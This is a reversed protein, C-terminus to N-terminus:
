FSNLRLFTGPIALLVSVISDCRLLQIVNLNDSTPRRILCFDYPCLWRGTHPVKNLFRNHGAPHPRWRSSQLMGNRLISTQRFPQETSPEIAALPVFHSYGFEVLLRESEDPRFKEAPHVQVAAFRRQAAACEAGAWHSCHGILLRRASIEPQCCESTYAALRRKNTM